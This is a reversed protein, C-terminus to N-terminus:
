VLLNLRVSGLELGLALVGVVLQAESRRCRVGHGLVDAVQSVVVFTAVFLFAPVTLPGCGAVVEGWGRSLERMPFRKRAPLILETVALARAHRRVEDAVGPCVLLRGEAIM